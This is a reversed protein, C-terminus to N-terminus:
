CFDYRFSPFGLVMLEDGLCGVGCGWFGPKGSESDLEMLWFELKPGRRGRFGLDEIEQYVASPTFGANGTSLFMSIGM